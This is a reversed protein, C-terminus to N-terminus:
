RRTRERARTSGTGPIEVPGNEVLGTIEPRVALQPEIPELGLLARAVRRGGQVTLELGGQTLFPDSGWWPSLEILGGYEWGETAVLNPRFAFSGNLLRFLAFDTESAAPQHYEGYARVRFSARGAAPPTWELSAGSRRYYDGDDRGFFIAMLSNGVGLHRAREDVSALEHFVSFTIKGAVLFLGVLLVAWVAISRSQM